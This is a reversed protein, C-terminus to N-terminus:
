AKIVCEIPAPKVDDMRKVIHWLLDSNQWYSFHASLGGLYPIADWIRDPQLCYDIRGKLM